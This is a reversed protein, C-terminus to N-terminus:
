ELFVFDPLGKEKTMYDVASSYKWHRPENVFGSTVSNWHLYNLMQNFLLDGDLMMPSNKYQRFRFRQKSSSNKGEAKFLNLM